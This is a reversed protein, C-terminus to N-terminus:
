YSQRVTAMMAIIQDGDIVKSNEDSYGIFEVRGAADAVDLEEEFKQGSSLTEVAKLGKFNTAQDGYSQVKTIDENLSEWGLSKYFESFTPNSM